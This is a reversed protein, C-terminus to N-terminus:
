SFCFFVSIISFSAAMPSFSMLCPLRMSCSSKKLFISWRRLRIFQSIGININDRNDVASSIKFWEDNISQHSLLM